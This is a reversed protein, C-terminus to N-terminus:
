IGQLTLIEETVQSLVKEMQDTPLLENYFNKCVLFVNLCYYNRRMM